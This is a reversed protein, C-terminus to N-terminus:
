ENLKIAHVCPRFTCLGQFLFVGAIELFEEGAISLDSTVWHEKTTILMYTQPFVSSSRPLPKPVAELFLHCMFLSKSDKSIIPNLRNFSPFFILFCHGKIPSSCPIQHRWLTSFTLLHPLIVSILVPWTSLLFFTQLPIYM